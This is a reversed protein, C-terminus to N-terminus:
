DGLREEALIQATKIRLNGFAREGRAGFLKHDSGYKLDQPSVIL